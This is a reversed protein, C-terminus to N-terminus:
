SRGTSFILIRLGAASASGPMTGKVVAEDSTAADMGCFAVVSEPKPKTVAVGAPPNDLWRAPGDNALTIDIVDLTTASTKLLAKAAAMIRPTLCVQSKLAEFGPLGAAAITYFAKIPAFSVKVETTTGPALTQTWGHVTRLTWDALTPTDPEAPDRPTVLALAGLRALAEPKLAGIAKETEEGFPILPLHEAKLAALRDIGLALAQSYATTAVPTGDSTVVLDVPNEATRSPLVTVTTGETNVELDPMAVSAALALKTPGKDRLKYTYTM